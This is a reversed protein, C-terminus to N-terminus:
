AVAAGGGAGGEGAVDLTCTASSEDGALRRAEVVAGNMSGLEDLNVMGVLGLVERSAARM